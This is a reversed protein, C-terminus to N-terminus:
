AAVSENWGVNWRPSPAFSPVFSPEFCPPTASLPARSGSGRVLMIELCCIVTFFPFSPISAPPNTSSTRHALRWGAAQMKLPKLHPAKADDRKDTAGQRSSFTQISASHTKSRRIFAPANPIEVKRAERPDAEVIVSYLFRGLDFTFPISSNGPLSSQSSPRLVSKAVAPTAGDTWIQAVSLALDNYNSNNNNDIGNQINYVVVHLKAMFVMVGAYFLIQTRELALCLMWDM